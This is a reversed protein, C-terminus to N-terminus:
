RRILSDLRWGKVWSVFDIRRAMWCPGCSSSGESDMLCSEADLDDQKQEAEVDAFDAASLDFDTRVALWSVEIVAHHTGLSEKLHLIQEAARRLDIEAIAEFM